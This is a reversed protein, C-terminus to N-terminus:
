HAFRAGKVDLTVLQASNVGTGATTWFSEVSFVITSITNVPVPGGIISTIGAYQSDSIGGQVTTMVNASTAPSVTGVLQMCERSTHGPINSLLNFAASAEWIVTSNAVFRHKFTPPAASGTVVRWGACVEVVTGTTILATAPLTCTLSHPIWGGSGSSSTNISGTHGTCISTYPVGLGLASTADYRWATDSLRTARVRALPGKISDSASNFGNLLNSGFPVLTVYNADIIEIIYESRTTDLSADPLQCTTGNPGATLVIHGHTGLTCTEVLALTNYRVGELGAVNYTLAPALGTAGGSGTPNNCRFALEVGCKCLTADPLIYTENLTCPLAPLEEVALPLGTIPTTVTSTVQGQANFTPMCTALDSGCEGPTVGTPVLMATTITSAGPVITTNGQATARGDADFTVACTQTATGCSGPTVTTSAIMGATITGTGPVVTTNGAATLRGDADVTFTGVQTASGYPGATVTTSALDTATVTSNALMGGTITGAGPVITINAQATARGDADFTVACTETASGCSGPTVATAALEPAGVTGTALMSGTITGAGPVITTNAAATLRGDADVTFTGVQTASGYPNATVTTAALAPAGVAGTALMGSTITGAGPVITTNAKATARGDEDFTITCNETASGCSGATITTSALEVPGVTGPGLEGAGGEGSVALYYTGGGGDRLVLNFIENITLITGQAAVGPVAILSNDARNFVLNLIAQPTRVEQSMLFYVPALLLLLGLGIRKGWKRRM